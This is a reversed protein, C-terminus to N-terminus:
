TSQGSFILREIFVLVIIEMVKRVVGFANVLPSCELTIKHVKLFHLTTFLHDNHLIWQLKFILKIGLLSHKEFITEPKDNMFPNKGSLEEALQLETHM